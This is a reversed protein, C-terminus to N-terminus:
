IDRCYLTNFIKQGSINWKQTWSHPEIVMENNFVDILDNESWVFIQWKRWPVFQWLTPDIYVDWAKLCMHILWNHIEVALWTQQEIEQGLDNKLSPSITGCMDLVLWEIVRDKYEYNWTSLIQKIKDINNM